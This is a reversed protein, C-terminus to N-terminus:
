GAGDGRLRHSWIRLSLERAVDVLFEDFYL